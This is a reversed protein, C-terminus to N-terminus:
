DKEFNYEDRAVLPMIGSNYIILNLGGLQKTIEQFLAPIESFHTVDHQFIPFRIDSAPNRNDSSRESVRKAAEQSVRELEDGTRAVLAVSVGQKALEYVIKEGIGGSAGIVIAHKWKKSMPCTFLM